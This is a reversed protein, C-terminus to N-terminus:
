SGTQGLQVRVLFLQNAMRTVQRPRQLLAGRAPHSLTVPTNAWLKPLQSGLMNAANAGESGQSRITQHRGKADGPKQKM